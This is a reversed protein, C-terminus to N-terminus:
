RQNFEDWLKKLRSYFASLPFGVVNLYNGKIREIFISADGQIAYAGAKDFPEDTRVYWEIEDPLMKRFFVETSEYFRFSFGPSICSVGTIVQHGRGSLRQLMEVAHGYSGPKGMIEDDCIVITDAGIVLSDPNQEFVQAAKRGALELTLAAPDLDLGDEPVFSPVVRFNTFLLSLIEKRRPSASALVIDWGTDDFLKM